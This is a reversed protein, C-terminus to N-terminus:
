GRLRKNKKTKKCKKKKKKKKSKKCKKKKKKKKPKKTPAPTESSSLCRAEEYEMCFMETCSRGFDYCTNCGDFYTECDSPDSSIPALTPESVPALTPEPSPSPSSADSPCADACPKGLWEEAKDCMWSCHLKLGSCYHGENPNSATPQVKGSNVGVLTAGEADAFCPGGSDGNRIAYTVGEAPWVDFILDYEPTSKGTEYEYSTRLSTLALAGERLKGAGRAARQPSTLPEPVTVADAPPADDFFCAAPGEQPADERHLCASDGRGALTLVDGVGFDLGFGVTAATISAAYAADVEVHYLAVDSTSTQRADFRYEYDLVTGILEYSELVNDADFTATVLKHGVPSQQAACHGATIVLAIPGGTLDVFTGSCTFLDIFPVSPDDPNFWIGFSVVSSRIASESPVKNGQYVATALSALFSVRWCM